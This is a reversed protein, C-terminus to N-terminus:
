ATYLREIYDLTNGTEVFVSDIWDCKRQFSTEVREKQREQFLNYLSIFEEQNIKSLIFEKASHYLQKEKVLIRNVYDSAYYNKNCVYCHMYWINREDDYYIRAHQTGTHSSEHFPCYMGKNEILQPFVKPAVDQLTFKYNIIRNLIVKENYQEM